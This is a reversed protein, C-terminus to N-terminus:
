IYFSLGDLNRFPPFTYINILTLKFIDKMLLINNLDQNELKLNCAIFLSGYVLDVRASPVYQSITWWLLMTERGALLITKLFELPLYMNTLVLRDWLVLDCACKLSDIHNGKFTAVKQKAWKWCQLKTETKQFKNIQKNKTASWRRQQMRAKEVQSSQPSKKTAICPSRMVAERTTSGLSWAPSNWYNCCMPETATAGPVLPCLNWYNHGLPKLQGLCM